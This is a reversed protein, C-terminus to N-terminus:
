TGGVSLRALEGAGQLVIQRVRGVTQFVGFNAKFGHGIGRHLRHEFGQLAALDVARERDVEARILSLGHADQHDIGDHLGLHADQHARLPTRIDRGPGTERHGDVLAVDIKFGHDSARKGVPRDFVVRADFVAAMRHRRPLRVRDKGVIVAHTFVLRQPRFVLQDVQRGPLRHAQGERHARIM